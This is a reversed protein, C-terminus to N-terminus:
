CFPAKASFRHGQEVGPFVVGSSLFCLSFLLATHIAEREKLNVSEDSETPCLEVELSTFPLKEPCFDLPVPRPHRHHGV